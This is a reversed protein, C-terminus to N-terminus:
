ANGAPQVPWNPLQLPQIMQVVRSQAQRKTADIAHTYLGLTISPNSHRMLSQVTKVNECNHMLLTSFTHRFVHWSLHKQIGARQAAKRIHNKMLNEPWLPQRGYMRESAFIWDTEQAYPTEARWGLLDAIMVDELPMTQESEDTKVPGVHQHWVAKGINVTKEQFDIDQWQLALLESVRMGTPVDLLVLLRERLALELFLRQLEEPTLAARGNMRKAGQRVAQIPNHKMWGYRIAHSCIASMVNRIKAKSSRALPTKGDERLLTKLWEEVYVAAGDEIRELTYEGWRPLIYRRLNDSYVKKTSFSKDPNDEALEKGKYHEVLEAFSRPPRATESLDLNINLKLAELAHWAAAETRLERVSGVVLKRPRRTGDSRTERWRFIWVEHGGKRRLTKLSGRQYARTM